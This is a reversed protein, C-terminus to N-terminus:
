QTWGGSRCCAEFENNEIEILGVVDADIAALAAIIKARQRAFEETTDAGRCEMIQWNPGCIDNMGDDITTFYNLVNFSAVKLSGGVDDPQATRPNATIYDAGRTSKTNAM